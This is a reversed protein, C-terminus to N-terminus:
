CILYNNKYTGKALISEELSKLRKSTHKAQKRFVNHNNSIITDVRDIYAIRIEQNYKSGGPESTARVAAIALISDSVRKINILLENRFTSSNIGKITPNLNELLDGTWKMLHSLTKAEWEPGLVELTKKVKGGVLRDKCVIRVALAEGVSAIAWLATNTLPINPPLNLTYRGVLPVEYKTITSSMYLNKLDLYLGMFTSLRKAHSYRDEKSYVKKKKLCGRLTLYKYYLAPNSFHPRNM